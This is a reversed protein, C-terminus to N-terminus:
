VFLKAADALDPDFVEIKAILNMIRNRQERQKIALESIEDRMQKSKDRVLQEMWKKELFPDNPPRDIIEADQETNHRKLRKVKNWAFPASSLGEYLLLSPNRFVIKVRKREIICPKRSTPPPFTIFHVLNLPIANKPAIEINAEFEGWCDEAVRYPEHTMIREPREFTHHLHFTVKDIWRTLDEGNPSYLFIELHHTKDDTQKPLRKALHGYILEKEIILDKDSM